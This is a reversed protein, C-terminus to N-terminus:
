SKTNVERIMRSIWQHTQSSVYPHVHGGRQANIKLVNHVYHMLVGVVLLMIQLVLVLLLYKCATFIVVASSCSLTDLSAM